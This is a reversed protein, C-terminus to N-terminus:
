LRGEIADDYLDEFLLPYKDYLQYLLINKVAYVIEPHSFESARLKIFHRLERINMTIVIETKLALPLVNRAFQASCGFGILDMYAKEADQMAKKWIEYIRFKEEMDKGKTSKDLELLGDYGLIDIVSIESGFKGKAYSCYRTSEQSYSAIRHRVIENAIARNTVISFTIKGHELVSEHGRSILMKIVREASGEDIADESKYCVRGALEILKYLDNAEPADLLVVSQKVPKM